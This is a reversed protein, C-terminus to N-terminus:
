PHSGDRIIKPYFKQYNNLAPEASLQLLFIDMVISFFFFVFYSSFHGNRAPQSTLYYSLTEQPLWFKLLPFWHSNRLHKGLKQPTHGTSQLICQGKPWVGDLQSGPNGPEHFSQDLAQTKRLSWSSVAAPTPPPFYSCSRSPNHLASFIPESCTLDPPGRWVGRPTHECRM